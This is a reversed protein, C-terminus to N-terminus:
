HRAKDSFATLIASIINTSSCGKKFAVRKIKGGYSQVLNGGVIDKTKWDAGKVLVDPRIIEILSLPTPTDFIVVFDVAELAALVSARDKEGVIPRKDGKIKKVSADSNLGIVLIDGFAKAKELYQVHGAHLVDFCGNTFVIRRGKKRLDKIKGNLSSAALIKNKM